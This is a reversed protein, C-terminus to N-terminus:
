PHSGARDTVTSDIRVDAGVRHWSAQEQGAQVSHCWCGARSRSRSRLPSDLCRCCPFGSARSPSPHHRRCRGPHAERLVPDREHAAPLPSGRDRRRRTRGAGAHRCPVPRHRPDGNAARETRAPERRCRGRHCPRSAELTLRRARRAKDVKARDQRNAAERSGTWMRRAHQARRAVPFGLLPWSRSSAWCARELDAVRPRRPGRRRHRAALGAATVITSEPAPAAVDVRRLRRACTRARHRERAAHAAASGHARHRGGRRVRRRRHHDVDARSRPGHARRTSRSRTRSARRSPRRQRRRHPRALDAREAPLGQDRRAVARALDLTM